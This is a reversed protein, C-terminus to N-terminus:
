RSPFKTKEEHSVATDLLLRHKDSMTATVSSFSADNPVEDVDDVALPLTVDMKFIELARIDVTKHTLVSRGMDGSTTRRFIRMQTVVGIHKADGQTKRVLVVYRPM